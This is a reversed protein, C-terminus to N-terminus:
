LDQDKQETTKKATFKKVTPDILTKKKKKKSLYQKFFVQWYEYFYIFIFLYKADGEWILSLFVLILWRLKGAQLEHLTSVHPSATVHVTTAHWVKIRKIVQTTKHGQPLAADWAVWVAESDVTAQQWMKNHIYTLAKAVSFSYCWFYGYLSFQIVPEVAAPPQCLTIIYVERIYLNHTLCITIWAQKLTCLWWAAGSIWRHGGFWWKWPHGCTASSRLPRPLSAWHHHLLHDRDLARSCWSSGGASQDLLTLPIATGM